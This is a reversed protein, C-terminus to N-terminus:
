RPSDALEPTWQALQSLPVSATDVRGVDHAFVFRVTDRARKKDLRLLASARELAARELRHPLELEALLRTIRQTLPPPTHGLREGLRLAAVLGLAVAEGHTLATFGGASELAHGITHGLNLTARLGQEREDLSVVRAKVRVSRQVVETLIDGDRRLLAERRDEILALLEPDGILATKIVESLAGRFARETETKLVSVDCIVGSPQWFAGIANKAEHFDVATKGGVSADVMALLTTPVGIWRVGRMWTAAAFGTMDTVVGGGLGILVGQRDLGLTSLGQFIPRLGDLTKHQEGPPLLVETTKGGLGSLAALAPGGHLPEVNTDSVLLAGSPKGILGPLEREVLQEGIIVSYSAPGAAVAVANRRWITLVRDAVEEPSRGETAVIGHAEQYGDQRLSLLEAVRARPDADALLPRKEQEGPQTQLRRVIEEASAALMVVTATGLMEVRLKRDLLTGGGLAVVPAQHAREALVAELAERELLRFVSEGREAFLQRVSCGSRAEVVEDLDVFAAGAREAVRRGVSSKGTAMFGTLFLPRQM